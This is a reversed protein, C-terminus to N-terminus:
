ATWEMLLEVKNTELNKEEKLIKFGQKLYFLVARENKQYVSLTLKSHKAKIKALLQGGIGISRYDSLVFLGAVYTDILGLFGVIKGNHYYAYLAATPLTKKITQYNEIWYNQNIFAHADLNSKLWISALTELDTDSITELLQIM